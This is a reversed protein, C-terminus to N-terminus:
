NLSTLTRGHNIRRRMRELFPKFGYNGFWFHLLKDVGNSTLTAGSIGDVQHLAAAGKTKVGGKVVKFDVKGSQNYIKKGQWGAQWAPNEIEGGLGPTEGHEYFTIGRITNLDSNLALYGYMMSWLGSGRIPLIVQSIKNDKKVLYVWSYDELRRLGAIDTSKALSHSIKPNNVAQRQDFKKPNIEKVSVFKGSRLDIIRSDIAAFLQAVPIGERYLGAARLINKQRDLQQNAQQRSHLGVSASSVLFSCVFALLLASYFPKLASDRAM